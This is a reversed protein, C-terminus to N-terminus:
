SGTIGRALLARALDFEPDNTESVLVAGEFEVDWLRGHCRPDAILLAVCHATPAADSSKQNATPSSDYQHRLPQKAIPKSLLQTSEVNPGRSRIQPDSTRIREPAGNKM